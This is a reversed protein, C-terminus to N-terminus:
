DLRRIAEALRTRATVYEVRKDRLEQIVEAPAKAIFDANGLKVDLRGIEDESKKLDKTLRAREKDFDIFGELPLAATGEGAVVQASGKPFSDGAVASELRGMRLILENHRELWTRENASTTKLVLPLKDSPKVNMEARVSRVESILTKVWNM